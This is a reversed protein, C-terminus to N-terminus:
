ISEKRIEDIIQMRSDHGYCVKTFFLLGAISVILTLIIVWAPYTFHMRGFELTLLKQFCIVFVLTILASHLFARALLRANETMLMKGKQKKTMGMSHLVALEKHRALSRGMVSNYLNLLCILAIMITFCVAVIDAIKTVAASFDAYESFSGTRSVANRGFDDTIQSLKRILDSDDDTNLNFFVFKACNDEGFKPDKLRIHDHTQESIFFFLGNGNLTYYEKIDSENIYGAFTVSVPYKYVEDKEEDYEPIILDITEGEKISLPQKLNYETYDPKEAGDRFFGYDHTTIKLSDYILAPEAEAGEYKTLDIGAKGALKHYEEENLIIFDAGPNTFSDLSDGSTKDTVLLSRQIYEPIGYPFWKELIEKIADMYETKYYKLPVCNMYDVNNMEKYDSVEESTMIDKRGSQYWEDALHGENMFMYSYGTYAPGLILTGQENMSDLIDTVSRAAFATILTLTTFATISRIIGKTSTLNREVSATGLLREAKGKLMMSLYSRYGKKKLKVSTENGRISEVPGVKSIKRAPIWASIWVAAASFIVVLLINVPNMVLNYPIECSRGSIINQSISEIIRSFHPYLLAMGGKVVLIGIVIGLPLAFCLLSFVEYYVSWRKQKRTAGVSSLMGLYKCRERYSISFVNYIMVLSAATILIVFFVQCFLLLFNMKGDQGKAAFVLLMDNSVIRGNELPLREGTKTTYSSGQSLAAEREAPTKSTDLIRAIEGICDAKTNLDITLVANVNENMIATDDTGTMAIYGGQGPMGYYPEEMIGVVTLSKSRGTPKHIMAIQDNDEFYPFHDPTKLTEGPSIHFGVPLYVRAPKQGEKLVAKQEEATRAHIYREFFVAEIRDGPKIDAGDKQARESIIVEDANEPYRGEKVTINMWKFLDESYEKIELYPTVAPNGSAAFETYGLPKSIEFGEVFPLARIQDAQERNIDYVQYHWVGKDAAAANKVYELLTDKGIFVATMLIVMVTIGLFTVLTRKRNKRMYTRTVQFIIKRNDM